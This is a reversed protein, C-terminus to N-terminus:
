RLFPSSVFRFGCVIVITAILTHFALDKVYKGDIALTWDWYGPHTIFAIFGGVFMVIASVKM